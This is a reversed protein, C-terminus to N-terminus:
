ISNKSYYRVNKISNIFLKYKGGKQSFKEILMAKQIIFIGSLVYVRM